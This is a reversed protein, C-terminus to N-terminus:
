IRAQRFTFHDPVTDLIQEGSTQDPPELTAHFPAVARKAVTADERVRKGGVHEVIEVHIEFLAFPMARVTQRDTFLFHLAIKVPRPSRWPHLVLIPQLIGFPKTM